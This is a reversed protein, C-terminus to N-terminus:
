HLVKPKIRSPYGRVSGVPAGVSAGRKVGEGECVCKGKGRELGRQTHDFSKPLCINPVKCVIIGRNNINSDNNKVKGCGPAEREGERSETRASPGVTHTHLSTAEVLPCGTLPRQKDNSEGKRM